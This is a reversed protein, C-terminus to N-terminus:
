NYKELYNLVYNLIDKEMEYDQGMPIIAYVNDVMDVSSPMKSIRQVPESQHYLDPEFPISSDKIYKHFLEKNQFQTMQDTFSGGYYSNLNAILIPNEGELDFWLYNGTTGKNENIEVALAERLFTGDEEYFIFDFTGQDASYFFTSQPAIFEDFYITTSDEIVINLTRDSTNFFGLQRKTGSEKCSFLFISCLILFFSIKSM